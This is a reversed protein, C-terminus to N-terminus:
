GATGERGPACGSPRNEAGLRLEEYYVYDIIGCIALGNCASKVSIIKIIERRSRRDPLIFQVAAGSGSHFKKDITCYICFRQFINPPATLCRPLTLRRSSPPACVGVSFGQMEM